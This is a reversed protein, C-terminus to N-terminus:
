SRVLALRPALRGQELPVPLASSDGVPSLGSVAQLSAPASFALALAGRRGSWSIVESALAKAQRDSPEMDHYDLLWRASERMVLASMREASLEPDVLITSGHLRAGRSGSEATLELGIAFAFGFESVPGRMNIKETVWRAISRLTTM